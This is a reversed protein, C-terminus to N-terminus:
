KKTLLDSGFDNISHAEVKYVEKILENVHKQVENNLVSPNDSKM